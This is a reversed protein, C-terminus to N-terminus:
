EIAADAAAAVIVVGTMAPHLKCLYPYEGAASFTFSFSQGPLLIPSAFLEGVDPRGPVGSTVDHPMIEEDNTWTVTDGPSVRITTPAYAFDRIAAASEAAAAGSSAALALCGVALPVLLGLTIRRSMGEGM